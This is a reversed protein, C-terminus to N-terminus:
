EGSFHEHNIRQFDELQNKMAQLVMVTTFIERSKEENGMFEPMRELTKRMSIDIDRRMHKATVRLVYSKDFPKQTPVSASDAM